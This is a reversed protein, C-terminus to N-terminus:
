RSAVYGKGACLGCPFYTIPPPEVRNKRAVRLEKDRQLQDYGGRGTGDCDRRLRHQGFVLREAAM